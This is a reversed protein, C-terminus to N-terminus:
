DLAAVIDGTVAPASAGSPHLGPERLWDVPPAAANGALTLQRLGDASSFLLLSKRGDGCARILKALYDLVRREEYSVVYLVPYGSRVMLLLKDITERLSLRAM